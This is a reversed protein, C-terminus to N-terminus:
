ENNIDLRTYPTTLKGEEFQKKIEKLVIRNFEFNKLSRVEAELRYTVTGSALKEIGLVKLPTKIYKVERNIKQCIENLVSEIKESSDHCSFEVDIDCISPKISYNIVETINRNSIMKIEGSAARISTTRMGLATVTGRFSGIQINDGVKFQSETLITTGSILDKLTDQMALGGVVGVVGLSAVLAKTDVGWVDLIMLFAVILIIYKLINTLLTLITLAKRNDKDKAKAVLFRNVLKKIIIYVFFSFIAICITSIVEKTLIQEM